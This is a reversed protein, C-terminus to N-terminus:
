TYDPLEEKGKKIRELINMLEQAKKGEDTTLENALSIEYSASSPNKEIFGIVSEKKTLPNWYRINAGTKFRHSPIQIENKHIEVIEKNFKKYNKESLEIKETM